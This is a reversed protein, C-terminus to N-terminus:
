GPTTFVPRGLLAALRDIAPADDAVPQPHAFPTRGPPLDGLRARAFVLEPEVLEDPFDAHQDTAQALDWGHVLSEVVRLHLAAIGPVTGIPVSVLRELAGPQRFAVLLAEAAERNAGVPDAGLMDRRLEALPPMPEGGLIRAFLRNGGVLHNVLDHVTWESCPTPATWQQDQVAGVLRQDVELAQALADVPSPTM